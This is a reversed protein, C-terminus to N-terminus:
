AQGWMKGKSPFSRAAEADLFVSAGDPSLLMACTATIDALNALYDCALCITQARNLPQTAAANRQHRNLHDGASAGSRPQTTDM